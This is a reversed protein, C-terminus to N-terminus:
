KVQQLGERVVSDAGEEKEVPTLLPKIVTQSSDYQAASPLLSCFRLPHHMGTIGASQPLYIWCSLQSNSVLRLLLIFSGLGFWVLGLGLGFWVLGFQVLGFVLCATFGMWLSKLDWHDL